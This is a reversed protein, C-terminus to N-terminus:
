TTPGRPSRRRTWSHRTSTTRTCTSRRPSRARWSSSPAPSPAPLCGTLILLRLPPLRRADLVTRLRPSVLFSEEEEEEEEEGRSPAARESAVGCPPARDRGRNGCAAHLPWPLRCPAAFACRVGELTEDVVRSLINAAESSCVLTTMRGKIFFNWYGPFEIEATNTGYKLNFRDKPVVFIGPVQLNLQMSDKITEPPMGFQVAGYKTTVHVGGRPLYHVQVSPHSGTASTAAGSTYSARHTYRTRRRGRNVMETLAKIDRGGALQDERRKAEAAEASSTGGSGGSGGRYSSLRSMGTASSVRRAVMNSRDSSPPAPPPTQADIGDFKSFRVRPKNSDAGPSLETETVDDLVAAASQMRRLEEQVRTREEDLKELKSQLESPELGSPNLSARRGGGQRPGNGAVVRTFEADDEGAGPIPRSNQCGM